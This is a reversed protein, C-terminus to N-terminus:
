SNNRQQAHMRKHKLIAIASLQLTEGCDPCHYDRTVGASTGVPQEEVDSQPLTVCSAQHQLQEALSLALTKGCTQCNWVRRLYQESGSAAAVDESLLSDYTLYDQICWGGKFPHPKSDASVFPRSLSSSSSMSDPESDVETASSPATDKRGGKYLHTKASSSLQRLTYSYSSDLFEALKSALLDELATVKKDLRRDHQSEDRKQQSAQLKAELVSSWTNRLTQISSVVRQGSETDSFKLELWEDVVLRTCDANTDINQSFLTLTQLAPTRMSSVLYPKNTELLDVYALLEPQTSGKSKRQAPDIFDPNTAFVSTPHLVVFQKSKTHFVQDSDKRYSNCDDPIALQPYLGSCVVLKLVNLDRLSFSRRLASAEQLDALNHFLKFELDRLESTGSSVDEGDSVAGGEEDMKLM